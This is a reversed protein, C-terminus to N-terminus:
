PLTAAMSDELIAYGFGARGFDNGNYFLYRGYPTDVVAPYGIAAGDWAGPSVDIGVADDARRWSLGDRSVAYGMRYGPTHRNEVGYFMEYGAATSLVWPRGIRYEDARLAVCRHGSPPFTIGDESEAYMVDYIARSKTPGPIFRSGAGYWARFRGGERRISHVVRFLPEAESPPLVPDDVVRQFTEGGDDSEALGSFARFRVGDDNRREFGAYYLRLRGEHEHVACPIVGDQDFRGRGGPTLGPHTATRLIVSPDQIAVDVYAVSGADRDDRTGVFVRIADGQVLPTPQMASHRAWPKTGDPGYILGKKVWRM